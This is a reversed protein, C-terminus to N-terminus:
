LCIVCLLELDVHMSRAFGVIIVRLVTVWQAVDIVAVVVNVDVDVIVIVHRSAVLTWVHWVINVVVSIIARQARCM